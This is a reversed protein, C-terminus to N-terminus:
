GRIEEMLLEIVFGFVIGAGVIYLLYAIDLWDMLRVTTAFGKGFRRM